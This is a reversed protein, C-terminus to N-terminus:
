GSHDLIAETLDPALFAALIGSLSREDLGTSATPASRNPFRPATPQSM